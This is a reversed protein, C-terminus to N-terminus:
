LSVETKIKISKLLALPDDSADMLDFLHVLPQLCDTQMYKYCMNLYDKRKTILTLHEPKNLLIDEFIDQVIQVPNNTQMELMLSKDMIKLMQDKVRTM